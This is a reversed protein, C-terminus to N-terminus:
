TPARSEVYPLRPPFCGEPFSVDTEGKKLREAAARYAAVTARRVNLLEWFVERTAAFIKPAPSSKLAEPKSHPHVRLVARAGIPKTGKERHLQATEREVQRVADIMFQQRERESCGSLFPPPTLEVTERCRFLEHRGQLMARYQATRDFWTGDMTTEGRYLVGASSVGPWDLPSAVLGEKCSNALIYMFRDIQIEEEDSLSTSTYRRGWFKEKWDHVAGLERALNGKLYGTFQSMQEVGNAMTAMIHSHNSMFTFAHLEVEYM